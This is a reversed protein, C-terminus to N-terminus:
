AEKPQYGRSSTLRYTEVDKRYERFHKSVLRSFVQKNEQKYGNDVCWYKYRDYLSANTIRDHIEIEKVFTITPDSEEKFEGLVYTHENTETIYDCRRVMVYGELVWNFIASLHSNEAFKTPLSRDILRENAEKPVEVFKLPFEIFSLRRSIGDSRDSFKPYNNFSLILKVRPVFDIFQKGKYCANLVNGSVIKKIMAESSTLDNKVEESINLMAQQLHIARFPDGLEAADINKVNSKGFVKELTEMYVSKGNSGQGVLIACKHMKNDPFLVYGAFEQLFSMRKGDSETVTEIFDNWEKSFATPIYPYELCYTCFDEARHERFNYYPETDTLELTGNIFNMVSAMNFLQETVVAAKIVRLISSLRPGTAYPGLAVKIYCEIATDSKPEWCKGNYEFFSINPHYLLRHHSLIEKAIVDDPPAKKCEKLLSKLFDSDHTDAKMVAKFFVDVQPATKYRCVSRAFNEFEQPNSIKTALFETSDVANDIVASLSGGNSYYESIDKYPVPVSGVLCPIRNETLIKAMKITFKEGARTVKDNDYVLFVQKFMRAVSIATPLQEKSFFGTIASIVAYGEQEFSLADFAGEAIVLLERGQNKEISQLGWITHECMADDSIKMKMYKSDPYAGGELHRTAYYCIYGNKWYPFCLRGNNTRGIKLRNITADNIKRKHLYDRDADTLQEHYHQIEHCLNQTYDIWRDANYRNTEVGTLKALERIAKGKDGNHNLAAALDIVDGGNGGGWDYWHDDFVWFSTKNNAGPRLPSSCRDGSQKIPLGYRVAYEVCSIRSKIESISDKFM